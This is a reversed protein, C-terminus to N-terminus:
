PGAASALDVPARGNLRHLAEGTAGLASLHAAFGDFELLAAQVVAVKQRQTLPMRALECADFAGVIAGALRQAAAVQATTPDLADDLLRRQPREYGNGNTSAM